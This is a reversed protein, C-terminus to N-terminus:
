QLASIPLHVFRGDGFSRNSDYGDDDDDDDYHVFSISIIYMRTINIRKVVCNKATAIVRLM